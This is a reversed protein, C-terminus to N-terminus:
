CCHQAHQRASITMGPGWLPRWFVSAPRYFVDGSFHRTLADSVYIGQSGRISRRHHWGGKLVASEQEAIQNSLLRKASITKPLHHM